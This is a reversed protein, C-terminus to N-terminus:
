LAGVVTGNCAGSHAFPTRGKNRGGPAKLLTRAGQPYHPDGTRLIAPSRTVDICGIPIDGRKRNGGDDANGADGGDLSLYRVTDAYQRAIIALRDSRVKLSDQRGNPRFVTGALWTLEARQEALHRRIGPLILV